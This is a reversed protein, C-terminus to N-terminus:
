MVPPPLRRVAERGVRFDDVQVIFGDVSTCRVALYVAKGAYAALSIVYKTWQSSSPEVADLVEFGDTADGTTSVLFELREPYISYAKALVSM